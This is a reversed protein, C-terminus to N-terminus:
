RCENAFQVACRLSYSLILFIIVHILCFVSIYLTWTELMFPTKLEGVVRLLTSLPVKSGIRFGTHKYDGLVLVELAHLNIVGAHRGVQRYM